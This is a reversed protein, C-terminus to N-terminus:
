QKAADGLAKNLQNADQQIKQDATAAAKQAKQVDQQLNTVYKVPASNQIQAQNYAQLRQYVFWGTAALVAITILRKM